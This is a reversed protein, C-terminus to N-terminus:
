AKKKIVFVTLAIVLIIGVGLVAYVYNTLGGSNAEADQSSTPNTTGSPSPSLSTSTSPTATMSPWPTITQTPTSTPLPSAMPDYTNWYLILNYGYNNGVELGDDYIIDLKTGYVDLLYDVVIAMNYETENAEALGWIKDKPGRFGYAYDEPLAYATRTNVLDVNRPNEQIYQWFKKMADLHEEQLIGNTWGENADFIAIYKAGSDYAFIMDKYLEDGSEIYPPHTYTWTIMVGWEKGQANAAGRCMAVNLQRSYNWGFEAFVGTYGAKYDFWYAAYDSTFLSCNLALRNALGSKLRQVYIDSAESYTSADGVFDWDKDNDLVKGGPEDFRYIGLLHDGWRAKAEEYTLNGPRYQNGGMSYNISWRPEYVIFYLGKEYAYQCTENLFTSNQTVGTHGFIILNTFSSVQDILAKTEEVDGYAIDVGVYVEPTTQAATSTINLFGLIAGDLIVLLTILAFVKLQIPKM